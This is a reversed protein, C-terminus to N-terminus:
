QITKSGENSFVSENGTTDYATVSFYYTHGAPLNSITYTLVNLASLKTTYGCMTCSKPDIGTRPSTGYYVNYGSLGTLAGGGEDTTPAGWSLIASGTKPAPQAGSPASGGGGGCSIMLALLLVALSYYVLIKKNM